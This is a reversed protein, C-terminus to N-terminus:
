SPVPAVREPQLEAPEPVPPLADSKPAPPM